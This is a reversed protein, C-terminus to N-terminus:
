RQAMVRAWAARARRLALVAADYTRGIEVLRHAQQAWSSLEIGGARLARDLLQVERDLIPPIDAAADIAALAGSLQGQATAIEARVDMRVEVLRAQLTRVDANANARASRNRDVLPLPVSLQLGLEWEGWTGALGPATAFTGGPIDHRAHELDVGVTVGSIAARQEATAALRAAELQAVAARVRPDRDVLEEIVALPPAPSRDVDDNVELGAADPRGLLRALRVRSADLDGRAQAGDIQAARLDLTAADVDLQTGGGTGRMREATHAALERLEIMRAARAVRRQADALEAVARAVEGDLALLAAAREDDAATVAAQAARGHARWAGSVDITWELGVSWARDDLGSGPAPQQYRGIVVPDHTLWRGAVAERDRAAATTADAVAREPAHARAEAQAQPLTLPGPQARATATIALAIAVAPWASRKVDSDGEPARLAPHDV